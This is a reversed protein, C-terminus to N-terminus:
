PRQLLDEKTKHLRYEYNLILKKSKLAELDGPRNTGLEEHLFISMRIIM